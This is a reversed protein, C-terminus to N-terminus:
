SFAGSSYRRGARRDSSRRGALTRALALLADEVVVQLRLPGGVEDLEDLALLEERREERRRLEGTRVRPAIPLRVGVLAPVAGAVRRQRLDEAEVAEGVPVGFLDGDQSEPRDPLALVLVRLESGGVVELGSLHHREPEGLAFV